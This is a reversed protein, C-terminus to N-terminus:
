KQKKNARAKVLDKRLEMVAQVDQERARSQYEMLFYCATVISHYVVSVPFKRLQVQEEAKPITTLIHTCGIEQKTYFLSLQIPLFVTSLIYFPSSFTGSPKMALFAALSIMLLNGSIECCADQVILLFAQFGNIQANQL